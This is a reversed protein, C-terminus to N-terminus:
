IGDLAGRADQLLAPQDSKRGLGHVAQTGVRFIWPGNGGDIRGLATGGVM